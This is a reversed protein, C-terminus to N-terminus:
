RQLRPDRRHQAQDRSGRRARRGCGTSPIPMTCRARSRWPGSRSLTDLSVTVRDLGASRLENAHRRLLLGNTTMAIEDVGAVTSLDRVLADLGHRLLPEGGTLRVKHVGLSAFIRTVRVLEEFTLLSARPLWTYEAEPMCYRCRM